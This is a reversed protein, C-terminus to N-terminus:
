SIKKLLIQMKESNIPKKIFDSAGLDRVKDMSTKQIDASVVVIKANNDFEKIKALTEFGDMIPMTLDLFVISPTHTKYAELAELGNTAEFITNETLMVSNLTKMMIKRAMKSDDAILIKM